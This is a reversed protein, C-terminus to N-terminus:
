KQDAESNQRKTTRKPLLVYHIYPVVCGQSIIVHKFLEDLEKDMGVGFEIHRPTILKKNTDKTVNESAELVEAILYELVAALYVASYDSMRKGDIRNKLYRKIRGVPFYIGAKDSKSQREILNRQTLPQGRSSMM